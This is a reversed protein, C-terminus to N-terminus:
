NKREFECYQRGLKPLVIIRNLDYGLDSIILGSELHCHLDGLTSGPDYIFKTPQVYSLIGSELVEQGTKFGPHRSIVLTEIRENMKKFEFTDLQIKEGPLNGWDEFSTNSSFIWNGRFSNQLYEIWKEDAMSSGPYWINKIIKM